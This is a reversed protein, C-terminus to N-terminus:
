HREHLLFICTKSCHLARAVAALSWNEELKAIARAIQILTLNCPMKLFYKRYKKKVSTGFQSMKPRRRNLTFILNHNYPRHVFVRL